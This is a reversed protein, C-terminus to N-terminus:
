PTERGGTRGTGACGGCGFSIFYPDGPLPRGISGTGGCDPCVKPPEGPPAFHKPCPKGSMDHDEECEPLAPPAGISAPREGGDRSGSAGSRVVPTLKPPTETADNESGTDSSAVPSRSLHPQITAPTPASPSAGLALLFRDTRDYVDAGGGAQWDELLRRATDLQSRLDKDWTLAGVHGCECTVTLEDGSPKHTTEDSMPIGEPTCAALPM